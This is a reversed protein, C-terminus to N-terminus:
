QKSHTEDESKFKYYAILDLEPAVGHTGELGTDGTQGVGTHGQFGTIGYYGQIGTESQAGTEGPVGTEGIPGRVGQSGTVFTKTVTFTATKSFENISIVEFSSLVQKLVFQAVPVLNFLVDSSSKSVYKEQISVTDFIFRGTEVEYYANVIAYKNKDEPLKFFSSRRLPIILNDLTLVRDNYILNGLSVIYDTTGDANMRKYVTNTQGM